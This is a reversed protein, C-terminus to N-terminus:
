RGAAMLSQMAREITAAVKKPSMPMLNPEMVRVLFEEGSMSTITVRDNVVAVRKVSVLELDWDVQGVREIFSLKGDGIRLIGIARDDTNSRVWEAIWMARPADNSAVLVPVSLLAFFQVALALKIALISTKKM